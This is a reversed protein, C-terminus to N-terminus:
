KYYKLLSFINLLLRDIVKLYKLMLTQKHEKGKCLHLKEENRLKPLLIFVDFRSENAAMKFFIGVLLYHRMDYKSTLFGIM